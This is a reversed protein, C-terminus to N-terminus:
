QYELPRDEQHSSGAHEDKQLEKATAAGAEVLFIGLALGCVYGAFNRALLYVKVAVVHHRRVELLIHQDM